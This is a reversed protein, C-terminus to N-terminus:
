GDGQCSHGELEWPIGSPIINQGGYTCHPVNMHVCLHTHTDTHACM